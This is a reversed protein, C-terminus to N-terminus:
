EKHMHAPVGLALLFADKGIKSQVLKQFRDEDWKDEGLSKKVLKQCTKKWMNAASKKYEKLEQKEKEVKLLETARENDDTIAAVKEIKRKLHKPKKIKEPPGPRSYKKPAIVAGDGLLAVVQHNTIVNALDTEERKRKKTADNLTEHLFKCKSGRTCENKQFAFCVGSPRGSSAM